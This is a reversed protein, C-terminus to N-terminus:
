ASLQTAEPGFREGMLRLAAAGTWLLPVVATLLHHNEAYEPGPRARGTVIVAVRMLYSNAPMEPSHFRLANDTEAVM